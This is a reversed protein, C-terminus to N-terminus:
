ILTLGILTQYQKTENNIETIAIQFSDFAANKLNYKDKNLLVHNSLATFHNPCLIYSKELVKKMSILNDQQVERIAEQMMIHSPLLHQSLGKNQKSTDSIVVGDLNLNFGHIPDLLFRVLELNGSLIANELVIPEVKLTFKNRPDLLFRVLKFNGSWAAKELTNQNPKLNFKNAEDLLYLVSEMNGSWAAKDLTSQDPHLNFGNNPDLLYRILKLNGSWAALQLTFLDPSLNFLNNPDLLYRVLELNGSRVASNLTFQDITLNFNNKPNILYKLLNLNGSLAASHLTFIDPKLNYKNAPNLLRQVLKLNGSLAAYSLINENLELNFNNEKKILYLVLELNGSQAAYRLTEQNPTLGFENGPDLLYLVLKLNGSNAALLLMTNNIQWSLNQENELLQKTLELNGSEIAKNLLYVGQDKNNKYYAMPLSVCGSYISILLVNNHLECPIEALATDADKLCSIMLQLLYKKDHYINRLNLPMLFYNTKLNQLLPYANKYFKKEELNSPFELSSLLKQEICFEKKIKEKWLIPQTFLELWKKSVLCAKTIFENELYNIGIRNLIDNPLNEFFNKEWM